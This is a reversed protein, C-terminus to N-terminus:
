RQICLSSHSQVQLHKFPCVTERPTRAFYTLTLVVRVIAAQDQKSRTVIKESRYPLTDLQWLREVHKLLESDNTLVSTVLCQHPGLNNQVFKAPGQLAWGLRTRISAPRGPTGLRIPEVATILHPHDSGILVLPRINHFTKIPLGILHPYRKQLQDTPYSQDALGLRAATFAKSVKFNTKPDAAPCICFSVTSGRLTQVDQWITRLPLDERVGRMGLEQAAASLLMTRESSDDLVAYTTLTRNGHHLIVQIVKLLVRNGEPSCDVYLVETTPSAQQCDDRNSPRPRKDNVKHLVQLHKGQCLGCLKKLDCQAAQHPRACRWCRKNAKIRNVLAERSLKTVETCQSLFHEENECFPCYPRARGGKSKLDRQSARNDEPSKSGHLVTVTRQGQHSESKPADRERLGRSATPGDFDQCWLKYKLWQSLNLLNPTTGAQQFTCRRFEARQEPPLKSLLRVVHSGCHLEVEGDAGLTKFLRVPSSMFPSGRSPLPTM